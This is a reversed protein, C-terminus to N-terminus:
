VDNPCGFCAQPAPNKRMLFTDEIYIVLSIHCSKVFIRIVAESHPTRSVLVQKLDFSPPSNLRHHLM